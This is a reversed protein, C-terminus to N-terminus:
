EMPQLNSDQWPLPSCLYHKMKKTSAHLFVIIIPYTLPSLMHHYFAVRLHTGNLRESQSAGRIYPLTPHFSMFVPSCTMKQFELMSDVSFLTLISLLCFAFEDSSVLLFSMLAMQHVCRLVFEPRLKSKRGVRNEVVRMKLHGTSGGLLWGYQMMLVM